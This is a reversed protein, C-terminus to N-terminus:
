RADEDPDSCAVGSYAGNMCVAYATAADCLVEPLGPCMKASFEFYGGDDCKSPVANCPFGAEPLSGSAPGGGGCALFGVLPAALALLGLVAARHRRSPRM